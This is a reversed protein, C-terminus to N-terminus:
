GNQLIVSRDISFCGSACITLRDCCSWLKLWARTSFLKRRGLKQPVDVKEIQAVQPRMQSKASPWYLQEKYFSHCRTDIAREMRGEIDGYIQRYGFKQFLEVWVVSQSVLDYNRVIM